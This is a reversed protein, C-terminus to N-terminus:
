EASIGRAKIITAWSATEQRIQAKFQAPRIPQHILGQAKLQERVAPQELISTADSALQEIVEPPTGAPALLGYWSSVVVGAVGLEALTPIDPAVPSRTSDTVGLALLKGSKIHALTAPLNSFM